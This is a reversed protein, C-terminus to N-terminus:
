RETATMYAKIPIGSVEQGNLYWRKAFEFMDSSTHTKAKSTSVGLDNLIAQYCHALDRNMIVVDDGLIFYLKM